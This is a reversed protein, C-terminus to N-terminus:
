FSYKNRKPEVGEWFFALRIINFGWQSLLQADKEVFSTEPNFEDL